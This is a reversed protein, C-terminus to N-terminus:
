QRRGAVLAALVGIVLWMLLDPLTLLTLDMQIHDGSAANVILPLLLGDFLTLSLGVLSGRVLRRAAAAVGQGRRAATMLPWLTAALVLVPLAQALAIAALGYRMGLTVPGMLGLGAKVQWWCAAATTVRRMGSFQALLADHYVHGPGLDVRDIVVQGLATAILMGAFVLVTLGILVQVTVTLTKMGKSM